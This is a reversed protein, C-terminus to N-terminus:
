NRGTLAPKTTALPEIKCEVFTPKKFEFDKLTSTVLCTDGGTFDFQIEVMGFPSIDILVTGDEWHYSTAPVVERLVQRRKDTLIVDLPDKDKKTSESMIVLNKESDPYSFPRLTVQMAAMADFSIFISAAVVLTCKIKKLYSKKV